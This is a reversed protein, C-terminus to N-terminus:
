LTLRVFSAFQSLSDELGPPGRSRLASRNRALGSALSCHPYLTESPLLATAAGPAIVAGASATVLDVGTSFSEHECPEHPESPVQHHRHHDSHDREHSHHGSSEPSPLQLVLTGECANGHFIHASGSQHKCLEVVRGSPLFMSIALFAAFLTDM